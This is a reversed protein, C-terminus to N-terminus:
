HQYCMDWWQPLQLAESWGSSSLLSDHYSEESYDCSLLTDNGKLFPCM